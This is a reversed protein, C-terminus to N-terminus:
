RGTQNPQLLSKLFLGWRVAYLFADLDGPDDFARVDPLSSAERMEAGPELEWIIQVKEDLSNEDLCSLTVLHQCEQTGEAIAQESCEEVIYPRGRVLVTQGTEPATKM